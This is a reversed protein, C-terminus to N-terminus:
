VSPEKLLVSVKLNVNFIKIAYQIFGELCIEFNETESKKKKNLM